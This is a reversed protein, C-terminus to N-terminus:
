APIETVEVEVRPNAKDDFREALIRVIQKDDAYAIGELADLLVKMFGELDGQKRARYIRLTVAVPVTANFPFHGSALAYQASDRHYKKAAPRLFFQPVHRTGVRIVRIGRYNNANPPLPLTLNV